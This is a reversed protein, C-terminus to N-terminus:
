STQPQSAAAQETPPPTIRALRVADDSWGLRTAEDLPRDRAGAIGLPQLTRNLASAAPHAVSRLPGPELRDAWNLLGDSELLLIAVVFGGLTLFMHRISHNLHFDRM